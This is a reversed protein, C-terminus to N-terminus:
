ALYGNYPRSKASLAWSLCIRALLNNLDSSAGWVEGGGGFRTLHLRAMSGALESVYGVESQAAAHALYPEPVLLLGSQV